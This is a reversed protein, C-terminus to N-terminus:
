RPHIKGTHKKIFNSFNNEDSFGLDNSIESFTKNTLHIAKECECILKEIIIQKASKKTIYETIETLKRSTINLENAYYSM